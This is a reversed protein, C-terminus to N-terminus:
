SQDVRNKEELEKIRRDLESDTTDVKGSHEVEKKDKWGARNKLWIFAAATDPPYYESYKAYVPNEAGAPMFIKVANDNTFGTAKKFLAEAVQMDAKEKGNKISESFELYNLKWENITSESVEFFDALQKDTAGLLCYKYALDNYESKYKTPRGVEM